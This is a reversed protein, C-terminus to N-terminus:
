ASRGPQAVPHLAISALAHGIRPQDVKVFLGLPHDAPRDSARRRGRFAWVGPSPRPAPLLRREFPSSSGAGRRDGLAFVAFRAAVGCDLQEARPVLLANIRRRLNLHLAKIKVVVGKHGGLWRLVSVRHLAPALEKSSTRVSSAPPRNNTHASVSKQPARTKSQGQPALRRGEGKHPPAPPPPVVSAPAAKSPAVAMVVGCVGRRAACPRRRRPLTPSLSIAMPARCSPSMRACASSHRPRTSIAASRMSSRGRCNETTHLSAQLNCAIQDGPWPQRKHVVRGLAPRDAAHRDPTAVELALRPATQGGPATGAGGGSLIKPFIFRPDLPHRTGRQKHRAAVPLIV